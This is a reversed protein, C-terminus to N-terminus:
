ELKVGNTVKNVTNYLRDISMRLKKASVLKSMFDVPRHLTEAEDMADRFMHLLAVFGGLAFALSTLTVISFLAGFRQLPLMNALLLPAVAGFSTAGASLISHARAFLAGGGGM